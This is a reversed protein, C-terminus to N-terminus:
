SARHGRKVRVAEWYDNDDRGGFCTVEQQGATYEPHSVGGHSHLAKRTNVHTLRLQVGNRWRHGDSLQVQWNDNDDGIGNTGYATV